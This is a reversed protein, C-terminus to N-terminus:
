TRELPQKRKGWREKVKAEDPWGPEPARGGVRRQASSEQEAQLNEGLYCRGRAARRCLEESPIFAQQPKERLLDRPRTTVELCVKFLLEATFIRQM